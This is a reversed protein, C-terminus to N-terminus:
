ELAVVVLTEVLQLFDSGFELNWKKKKSSFM